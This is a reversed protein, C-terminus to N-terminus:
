VKVRKKGSLLDEMLGKKIQQMKELYSQESQLKTDISMLCEAIKLAEAKQVVPVLFESFHSKNVIPVAQLGIERRFQQENYFLMAYFFYTSLNSDFCIVSNIQQNTCGEKDLLAMKGITSGICVVCITNKPLKRCVDFGSQTLKKGTENIYVNDQIDAPSVFLFNNGYFESRATPPTSGTIIEGISSISEVEWEKPIWGLKSEKYLEPADQYRPSLKGTQIDIGRTFLDYLMGQKILKYKAIAAQTKEIVADCTSLINAIKTQQEFPPITIKIKSFESIWRRKHDSNAVSIKLSQLYEFVLKLDISVDERPRLFKMASSKVKFPFDVYKSDTTFDDFIIVPLNSYVNDSENTYGLLFSKGATLVPIGFVDNYEESLVIYHYPQEYQLIESLEVIHWGDPMAKLCESM